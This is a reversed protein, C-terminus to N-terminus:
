ASRWLLPAFLLPELANRHMAINVVLIFLVLFIVTEM